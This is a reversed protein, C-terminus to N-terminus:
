AARRVIATEDEIRQKASELYGRDIDIGVFNRGCRVAAVGTSGSGAFPDLIVRANTAEIARQPLAVPFPAPHDNNREIPIKWVDKWDGGSLYPKLKFKSKAFIIIQEHSPLFYGPNFNMGSGRDWIVIQRVPLGPNLEIPNWLEGKQIRPKHNFFIAGDDSLLRWCETLVEKMWAVYQDHPLADDYSAYGNRLKANKWRGGQWGGKAARLNYPPSTFILDVSGSAMAPMVNLCDGIHLKAQPSVVIENEAHANAKAPADDTNENAASGSDPIADRSTSANSRKRPKSMKSTATGVNETRSKLRWREPNATTEIEDPRESALKRMRNYVTGEAIKIGRATLRKHLKGASVWDATLNAMLDSDLCPTSPRAARSNSKKARPSHTAEAANDNGAPPLDVLRTLGALLRAYKGEAIKAREEAATLYAALPGLINKVSNEM